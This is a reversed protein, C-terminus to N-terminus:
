WRARVGAQRRHPQRRRRARPQAARRSGRPRVRFTTSRRRRERQARRAGRGDGLQRGGEADGSRRARRAEFYDALRPIATLVDVDYAGLAYETSSARAARRGAARAADDAHPEIWDPALVLPPLDPEPFYRYDHSGEKTRARACRAARRRGVADDAAPGHRRRRAARGPARVRRRARARRRLLLEHEQGRDQHRADTEGRRRASVNADVRLSGEEMNCTASTATSSSRSSRACTPARRRRRAAHRARQRDRHAARRRSQPRHRDRRSLSRPAVQGRGGGHARAHHRRPHALRRRAPRDDVIGTTALPQDFQSIQYGKPLDPYFYNKRAFVSSRTCRATSRSRPARRWSSRTRTSCRCRARCRRPVGPLHERQAARRVRHLLRLVGQHADPAARAGRARHGDGLRSRCPPAREDRAGGAGLARELAYAAAFMQRRTSTRRSSSVASRCGTSAASRAAVDRPRRRPEGDGHLHREPVDRVPRCVRASRSPRRRRPRRSCCRARRQRLRRRLRRRHPARVQQAKRYYADYYGARCCTRASCSAARSRPASAAALADGRVDRALGDGAIRLGYRVGDFRALNSSAEAPAIIYYVPIALDTHPLSVDRSRPASRACRARARADCRARM